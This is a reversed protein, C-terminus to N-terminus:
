EQSKIGVVKEYVNGIPGWEFIVGKGSSGGGSTMGYFKDNVFTLSGYPRNGDDSPTFDIKKSYANSVPDWEFIVGNVSNGGLPTMGYFKGNSNSYTLSGIPNAGDGGTFKKKKIYVNSVPDWEFIVGNGIGSSGGKYTMGYFKGNAFTLSGSPNAGDDGTFEKKKIYMNSVPEWEFIVGNGSSGGYQTMGYFKDNALTLNGWPNAGDIGTFDKKKSYANTAPDWEFIVGKGSSGGYQTMGYFKGNSYTLGGRPNTGDTGAFEKKKSYANSVPDWEFIVGNGSSGGRYTMGYFKGNAYTLSGSPNAGDDGTFDKKKTYVNTTPDWEFIVGNGSNGGEYTMGYFKDNAYTLDGFPKAGDDGTFKKKSTYVNTAPDWEFITGINSSDGYRTMGYFKGNAFTLSGYPNAGPTTTTPSYLATLSDNGADFKIISGLNDSGGGYTMGLFTQGYGYLSSLLLLLSTLMAGLWGAPRYTSPKLFLSPLSTYM